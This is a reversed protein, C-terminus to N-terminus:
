KLQTVENNESFMIMNLMEQDISQWSSTDLNCSYKQSVLILLTPFTPHPLLKRKNLAPRTQWHNNCSYFREQLSLKSM